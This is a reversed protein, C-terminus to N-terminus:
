QVPTAGLGKIQAELRQIRAILQKISTGRRVFESCVLKTQALNLPLRNNTKWAQRIQFMTNQRAGVPVSKGWWVLAPGDFCDRLGIADAAKALDSRRTYWSLPRRAVNAWLWPGLELGGAQQKYTSDWVNALRMVQIALAIESVAGDRVAKCLNAKITVLPTSQPPSMMTM